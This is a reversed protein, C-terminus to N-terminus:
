FRFSFSKNNLPFISQFFNQPRRVPEEPEEEEEKSYSIAQTSQTKPAAQLKSGIPKAVKSLQMRFDFFIRGITGWHINRWAYFM